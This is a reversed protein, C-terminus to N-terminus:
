HNSCEGQLRIHTWYGAADGMLNNPDDNQVTWSFPCIQLQQWCKKGAVYEFSFKQKPLAFLLLGSHNWKEQLVELVKIKTSPSKMRTNASLIKSAIDLLIFCRFIILPTDIWNIAWILLRKIIDIVRFNYRRKKDYRFTKSTLESVIDLSRFIKKFALQVKQLLDSTYEGVYRWTDVHPLNRWVRHVYLMFGFVSLKFLWIMWFDFNFVYYM